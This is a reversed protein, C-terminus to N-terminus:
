KFCLLLLSMFHRSVLTLLSQSLVTELLRVTDEVRVVKGDALHAAEKLRARTDEGRINWNKRNPKIELM